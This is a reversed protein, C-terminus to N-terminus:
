NQYQKMSDWASSFIYREIEDYDYNISVKRTSVTNLNLIYSPVLTGPPSQLVTAMHYPYKGCNALSFVIVKTNKHEKKYAQAVALSSATHPCIYLKNKACERSVEVSLENSINKVYLFSLKKQILHLDVTYHDINPNNLQLITSVKGGDNYLYYLLREFNFQCNGKISPGKPDTTTAYSKFNFIGTTMFDVFPDDDKCSVLLHDYSLGMERAFIGAMVSTLNSTNTAISFHGKQIASAKLYTYFYFPIELLVRFWNLANGSVLYQYEGFKHTLFMKELSQLIQCTCADVVHVCHVSTGMVNIMEKEAVRRVDISSYLAYCSILESKSKLAQLCAPGSNSQSGIVVTIIKNFENKHDKIHHDVYYQLYNGLFQMPFDSDSLSPGHYFEAFFDNGIQKIPIREKTDFGSYSTCIINYLDDKPCTEEDIFRSLVETCIQEYTFDKWSELESKSIKPITEPYFYGGNKAVSYLLTKSFNCQQTGGRTSIYKM